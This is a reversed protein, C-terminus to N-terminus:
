YHFAKTISLIDNNGKQDYAFDKLLDGRYDEETLKYEQLLSGVAGDMVLVRKELEKYINKKM